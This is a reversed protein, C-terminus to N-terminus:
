TNSPTGVMFVQFVGLLQQGPIRIDVAYQNHGTIIMYGPRHGDGPVESKFRFPKAAGTQRFVPDLVMAPFGQSPAFVPQLFVQM